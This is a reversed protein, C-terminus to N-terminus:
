SPIPDVEVDDFRCHYHTTGLGIRGSTLTGGSDENTFYQTGDVWVNITQGEISFRVTYWQDQVLAFSVASGIQTNTGGIRRYLILSDNDEQMRLFYYNSDDQIRFFLNAGRPTTGNTVFKMKTEFTYDTWSTDGAISRRNTTTTDTQEYVTTGDTATQWTGTIVIWGDPAEPPMHENFNDFFLGVAIDVTPAYSQLSFATTPYLLCVSIILFSKAIRSRAKTLDKTLREKEGEDQEHLKPDKRSGGVKRELDM